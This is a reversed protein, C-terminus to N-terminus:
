ALGHLLGRRHLRGTPCARADVEVISQTASVEILGRRRTLRAHRVAALFRWVILPAPRTSMRAFCPVQGASNSFGAPLDPRYAASDESSSPRSIALRTRIIALRRIRRASRRCHRSRHGQNTTTTTKKKPPPTNDCRVHARGPEEASATVWNEITLSANCRYETTTNTQVLTQTRRM